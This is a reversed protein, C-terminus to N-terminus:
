FAVTSVGPFTWHEGDEGHERQLTRQAHSRTAGSRGDGGNRETAPASIVMAMLAHAARAEAETEYTLSVLPGGEANPLSPLGVTSLRQRQM